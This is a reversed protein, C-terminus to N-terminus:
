IDYVIEKSSQVSQFTKNSTTAFMGKILYGFKTLPESFKWWIFVVFVTVLIIPILFNLISGLQTEVM